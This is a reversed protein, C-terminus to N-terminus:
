QLVLVTAVAGPIWCGVAVLAVAPRRRLGLHSCLAATVPGFLSVSSALAALTVCTFFAAALTGGGATAAFAPPLTVFLLAPGDAPRAGTELVVPLIALAALLAIVVDVVIM